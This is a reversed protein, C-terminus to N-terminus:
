SPPSSIPCLKYVLDDVFVHEIFLSSGRIRIASADVSGSAILDRRKMLLLLEM